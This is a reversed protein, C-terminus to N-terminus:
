MRRFNLRQTKTQVRGGPHQLETADVRLRLADVVRAKFQNLDLASAYAQSGVVQRPARDTVGLVMHGGGENALAVFYRMLKTSDYQQKAQKFELRETEAPATLWRALTDLTVPM